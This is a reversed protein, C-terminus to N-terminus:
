PKPNRPQFVSLFHSAHGNLYLDTKSCVVASTPRPHPVKLFDQQELLQSRKTTYLSYCLNVFAVYHRPTAGVNGRGNHVTLLQQILKRLDLADNGAAEILPQLRSMAVAEMGTSDWLETWQIYCRLGFHQPPMCARAYLLSDAFAWAFQHLMRISKCSSVLYRRITAVFSSDDKMIGTTGSTTSVPM